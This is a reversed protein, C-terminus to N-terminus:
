FTCCQQTLRCVFLFIVKNAPPVHVVSVVGKSDGAFLRAEEDDWCLATVTSNKHEESRRILQMILMTSFILCSMGSCPLVTCLQYVCSKNHMYLLKSTDRTGDNASLAGSPCLHHQEPWLYVIHGGFTMGSQGITVFIYGQTSVSLNSNKTYLPPRQLITLMLTFVDKM